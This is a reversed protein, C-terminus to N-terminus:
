SNLSAPLMSSWSLLVMLEVVPSRAVTNLVLSKAPCSMHALLSLHTKEGRKASLMDKLAPGMCTGTGGSDKPSGLHGSGTAGSSQFLVISAFKSVVLKPTSIEPLM